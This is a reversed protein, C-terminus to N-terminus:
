QHINSFLYICAASIDSVVNGQDDYSRMYAEDVHHRVRFIDSRVGEDRYQEVIANSPSDETWLFTRGFGPAMLDDGSSIKLLAAYEKDWVDTV